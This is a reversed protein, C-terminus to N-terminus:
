SPQFTKYYKVQLCYKMCLKYICVNINSCIICWMGLYLCHWTSHSINKYEKIVCYKFPQFIFNTVACSHLTVFLCRRWENNHWAAVFKMRGYTVAFRHQLMFCYTNPVIVMCIKAKIIWWSFHMKVEWNWTTLYM